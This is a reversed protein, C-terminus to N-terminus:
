IWNIQVADEALCLQIQELILFFQNFISLTKVITEILIM